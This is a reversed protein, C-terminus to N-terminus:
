FRYNKFFETKLYKVNLWPTYRWSKALNAKTLFIDIINVAEEARGSLM